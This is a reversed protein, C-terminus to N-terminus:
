ETRRRKVLVWRRVNSKPDISSGQATLASPTAGLVDGDGHMVQVGGHVSLHTDKGFRLRKREFLTPVGVNPGKNFNQVIAVPQCEGLIDTNCAAADVVTGICSGVLVTLM